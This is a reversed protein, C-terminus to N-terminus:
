FFYVKKSNEKYEKTSQIEYGKKLANILESSCDNFLPNKQTQSLANILDELEEINPGRPNLIPKFEFNDKTKEQM